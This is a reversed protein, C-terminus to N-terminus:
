VRWLAVNLTYGWPLPVRATVGHTRCDVGRPFGWGFSVRALFRAVKCEWLSKNMRAFKNGYRPRSQVSYGHDYLWNELKTKM